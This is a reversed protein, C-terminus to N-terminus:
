QNDNHQFIINQHYILKEPGDRFHKIIQKDETTKHKKNEYTFLQITATSILQARELEDQILTRRETDPKNAELVLRQTRERSERELLIKHSEIERKERDLKIRLSEKACTEAARAADIKVRKLEPDMLVTEMHRVCPTILIDDNSDNTEVTSNSEENVMRVILREGKKPVNHRILANRLPAKDEETRSSEELLKWIAAATAMYTKKYHTGHRVQITKYGEAEYATFM